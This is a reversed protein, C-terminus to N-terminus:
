NAKFANLMRGPEGHNGTVVHVHNSRVNLAQLLYERIGCTEKIAEEVVIREKAGLIFPSFKLMRSETSVKESNPVIKPSGFLNHFRRDMSGREDGHLWTGYCRFTLLYGVATNRDQFDIHDRKPM